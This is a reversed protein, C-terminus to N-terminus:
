SNEPRTLISPWGEMTDLKDRWMDAFKRALMEWVYAQKEAYAECGSAVDGACSGEQRRRSKEGRWWGAKWFSYVLVRRMEEKVLDLEESYREARADSKAWEV